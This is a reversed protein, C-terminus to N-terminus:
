LIAENSHMKSVGTYIHGCVGFLTKENQKASQKHHSGMEYVAADTTLNAEM